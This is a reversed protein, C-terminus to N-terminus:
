GLLNRYAERQRALVAAPAMTDLALARAAGGLAAAREPHARLEIIAGALATVDGEQVLLGTSGHRVLESQWEVDYAVIPTGSLAAELLARGTLPSVVVSAGVLAAAIWQQDRAGACWMREAIGLESALQELQAKSSGDGVLILGLGPDQRAALAFARVVEDCRKVPELRSVTIVYDTWGPPVDPHPRGEPASLHVDNLMNGYALVVCCERDAGNAVAFELNDHNVPTVLKARRLVWRDVLKEVARHKFIRPYAQLGVTAHIADYNGAVRVVLPARCGYALGWGLLGLYYPDGAQVISVRGSRRLRLLRRYLGVQALLFNVHPLSRLMAFRGVRGEIVTHRPTLATESPDGTPQDQHEPSAGILPHVTWVRNFFGDLDANTICHLLDRQRMTDLSYSNDLVLLTRDGSSRTASPRALTWMLLLAGLFPALFATLALDVVRRM